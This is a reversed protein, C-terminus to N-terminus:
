AEYELWRSHVTATVDFVQAITAPTLVQAPVGDAVLRGDQLLLVRHAYRLALNLDHTVTVVLMKEALTALLRYLSIQHRPDLFTTPEDLLLVEPEQALASALLVSQREGGSLARFDRERFPLAGTIELAHTVATEDDPSDSWNGLLGGRAHPTRGMYVMQEVTFPFEVRTAQPLFAVKSAFAHQKWQRIETEAYVCSGHYPARVGALIGVLTSKGAGNPGAVAILGTSPLEFTVDQLGYAFALNRARFTTM